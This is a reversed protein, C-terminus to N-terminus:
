RDRNEMWTDLDQVELQLQPYTAHMCHVMGVLSMCRGGVVMQWEGENAEFWFGVMFIEAVARRIAAMVAGVEV